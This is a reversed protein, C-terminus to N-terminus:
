LLWVFCSINLWFYVLICLNSESKKQSQARFSLLIILLPCLGLKGRNTDKGRIESGTFCKQVPLLLLQSSTRGVSRDKSCVFRKAIQESLIETEVPRSVPWIAWWTTEKSVRVALRGRKNFCVFDRTHRSRMTVRSDFNITELEIHAVSMVCLVLHYHKLEYWVNDRLGVASFDVDRHRIIVARHV